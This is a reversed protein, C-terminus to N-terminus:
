THKQLLTRSLLKKRKESINMSFIYYTTQSQKYLAGLVLCRPMCIGLALYVDLRNRGGRRTQYRERPALDQTTTWTLGSIRRSLSHRHWGRSKVHRPFRTTGNENEVHYIGIRCWSEAGCAFAGSPGWGVKRRGMATRRTKLVLRRWIRCADEASNRCAMSCKRRQRGVLPGEGCGQEDHRIAPDIGTPPRSAATGQNGRLPGAPLVRTRTRSSHQHFAQGREYLMMTDLKVQQLTKFARISGVYPEDDQFPVSRM